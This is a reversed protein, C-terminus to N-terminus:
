RMYHTTPPDEFGLCNPHNYAGIPWDEAMMSVYGNPKFQDIIFNEASVYEQCSNPAESKLETDAYMGEPTEHIRLGLDTTYKGIRIVAVYLGNLFAYANPRSNSGVKNLGRFHVARYRYLLTQFTKPLSRVAENSSVSDLILIFVNPRYTNSENGLDEYRRDPVIQTHLFSHVYRIDDLKTCNVEVFDCDLIPSERGILKIWEGFRINTDNHAYLCRYECRLRDIDDENEETKEVIWLRRNLLQTLPTILPECGSLLNYQPDVIKMIEDDWADFRPLICEDDIASINKEYKYIM